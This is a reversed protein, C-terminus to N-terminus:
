GILSDIEQLMTSLRHASAGVESATTKMCDQRGHLDDQRVRGDAVREAVSGRLRELVVSVLKESSQMTQLAEEMEARITLQVATGANM